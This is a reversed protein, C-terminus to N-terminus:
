ALLGESHLAVLIHNTGQLLTPVDAWARNARAAQAAPNTPYDHALVNRTTGIDIWRDASPLGGIAEARRFQNQASMGALSEGSLALYGRLLKGTTLDYLQDFMRLLAHLSERRDDEWTAMAAGDLPFVSKLRTSLRGLHASLQEAAVVAETTAEVIEDRTM